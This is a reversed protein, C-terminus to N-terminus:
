VGRERGSGRGNSRSGPPQAGPTTTPRTLPAGGAPALPRGRGAAVTDRYARWVGATDGVLLCRLAAQLFRAGFPESRSSQFAAGRVLLRGDYTLLAYNKVEHSLM